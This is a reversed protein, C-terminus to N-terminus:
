RGRLGQNVEQFGLIESLKTGDQSTYLGWLVFFFFDVLHVFVCVISCLSVGCETMDVDAPRWFSDESLGINCFHLRPRREELDTLELLSSQVVDLECAGEEEGHHM